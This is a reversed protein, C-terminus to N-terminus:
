RYKEYEESSLNLVFERFKRDNRPCVVLVKDTDVITYNELGYAAILKDKRTGIVLNDKCASLLCRVNAANGDPDKDPIISYLSEWTGVDFWGFSSPYIWARDTREMIGYDISIKQIDAYVKDLFDNRAASRLAGEWGRFLWVMQPLHKEYERRLTEARVILIGSNWLFEGSDVFVKALTADPKEAFTKVKVCRGDQPINEAQIYGYNTDPRTPTIGITMIVDDSLMATIDRVVGIFKERELILHDSPVIVMVANPDRTLITYMALAICPATDRNYPEELINEEPLQPISSRVLSAHKRNTVVITRELPIVGDFRSATEQLFNRGTDAVPVFQKPLNETSIPWFRTGKGGAMIM